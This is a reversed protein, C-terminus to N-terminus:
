CHESWLASIIGLETFTPVRGLMANLREFEENTLGHEAVVAATIEPDGPRPAVNSSM